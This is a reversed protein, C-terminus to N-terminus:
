FFNYGINLGARFFLNIDNSSNLSFAAFPSVETEIFFNKNQYLKYNLCIAPIIGITNEYKDILLKRISFLLGTELKKNLFSRKYGISFDAYFFSDTIERYIRTDIEIINNKKNFKFIKFGFGASSYLVNKGSTIETIAFPSMINLITDKESDDKPNTDLDATTSNNMDASTESKNENTEQNDKTESLLLDTETNVEKKESLVEKVLSEIAKSDKIDGNLWATENIEQSNNETNILQFIFQYKKDIEKIEIKFVKNVAKIKAFKKLCDDNCIKNSKSLQTLGDYELISYGKKNLESDIIPFTTKIISNNIKMKTSYLYILIKETTDKKVEDKKATDKKVEDKKVTDKKVTDKKVVDKKVVDKKVVDKKVTDKETTTDKSIANENKTKENLLMNNATKFDKPCKKSSPEAFIPIFIGIFDIHYNLGIGFTFANSLKHEGDVNDSKHKGLNLGFGGKFFIDANPSISYGLKIFPEIIYSNVSLSVKDNDKKSYSQAGYGFSSGLSFYMMSTSIYLRKEIDLSLKYDIGGKYKDSSSKEIENTLGFTVLVNLWVESFMSSNLIFGLDGYYGLSVNKSNGGGIDNEKDDEVHAMNYGFNMNAFVGSWPHEIIIDNDSVSGSLLDLSTNTDEKETKVSCTNAVNRVKSFGKNEEFDKRIFFPGDFRVDEQTGIPIQFTNNNNTNVAITENKFDNIQQKVKINLAIFTEKIMSDFKHDILQNIQQISPIDKTKINGGIFQLVSDTELNVSSTELASSFADSFQKEFFSKENTIIKTEEFKKGDFKFVYLNIDLDTKFSTLYYSEKKTVIHDITIKGNKILGLHFSLFYLSNIVTSLIKSDINLKESTKKLFDAKKEKSLDNEFPGGINKIESIMNTNLYESIKKNFDKVSQESIKFSHNTKMESNIESTIITAKKNEYFISNFKGPIVFSIYKLLLKDFLTEPIKYKVETPVEKNSEDSKDVCKKSNCLLEVKFVNDYKEIGFKALTSVTKKNLYSFEDNSFLNLSFLLLMVSFLLLRKNLM